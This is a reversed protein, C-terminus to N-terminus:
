VTNLSFVGNGERSRCARFQRAVAWRERQVCQRPWRPASPLLLGSHWSGLDTVRQLPVQFRRGDLTSAQREVGRIQTPRTVLEPSPAGHSLLRPSRAPPDSAVHLLSTHCSLRDTLLFGAASGAASRQRSLSGLQSWVHLADSSPWIQHSVSLFTPWNMM